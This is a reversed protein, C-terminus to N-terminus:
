KDWGAPAEYPKDYIPIRARSHWIMLGTLWGLLAVLAGAAVWTNSLLGAIAPTSMAWWLIVGLLAVRVAYSAMTITMGNSDAMRLTITEVLQGSVFYALVLGAALAVSIAGRTGDLVAGLIATLITASGSVLLAGRALGAPGTAPRRAM